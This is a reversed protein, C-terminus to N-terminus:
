FHGFHAPISFPLHARMRQQHTIHLENNFVRQIPALHTHHVSSIGIESKRVCFFNFDMWKSNQLSSQYIARSQLISLLRCNSMWALFQMKLSTKTQLSTKKETIVKAETVISCTRLLVIFRWNIMSAITNSWSPQDTHQLNYGGTSNLWRFYVNESSQDNTNYKTAEAFGVFLIFHRHPWLQCEIM